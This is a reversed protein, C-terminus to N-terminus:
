LHFGSETKPGPCFSRIKKFKLFDSGLGSASLSKFFVRYGFEFEATDIKFLGDFVSGM